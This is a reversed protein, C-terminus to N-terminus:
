RLHRLGLESLEFEEKDEAEEVDEAESSVSLLDLPLLSELELGSHISRNAPPPGSSASSTFALSEDEEGEDGSLGGGSELRRELETSEPVEDM